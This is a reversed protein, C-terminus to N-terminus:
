TGFVSSVIADIEANTLAVAPPNQDPLASAKTKLEQLKTTNTQLPTSM